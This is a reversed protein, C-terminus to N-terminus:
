IATRARLAAALTGEDLYDLEGGVPVGHALRTIKVNLGTLQDTIYHATTQGEVTANVAIILERVGGEGIRDILGRINLDDPGIGDLPSLTGGLVHYAANMAAARELAWLDSVDEVVIIVSHDRRADTCVTCPDVTDVNGCRSCVKVKDYAEGMATSLPGLLQDKKKILHLAARRASRPGLGPVKALLQILKEIEPGTVRKTM